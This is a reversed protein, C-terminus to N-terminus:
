AAETKLRKITERFRKDKPSLVLRQHDEKSIIFFAVPIEAYDKEQTHTAGLYYANTRAGGFGGQCAELMAPVDWEDAHRFYDYGLIIKSEDLSIFQKGNTGDLDISYPKDKDHIRKFDPQFVRLIDTAIFQAKVKKGLADYLFPNSSHLNNDLRRKLKSNIALIQKVDM